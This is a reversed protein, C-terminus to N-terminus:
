QNSQPSETAQQSTPMQSTSRPSFYLKARNRIQGLRPQGVPRHPRKVRVDSRYKRTRPTSYMMGSIPSMTMRNLLTQDKISIKGRKAKKELQKLVKQRQNPRLTALYNVIRQQDGSLLIQRENIKSNKPIINNNLVTPSTPIGMPILSHLKCVDFNIRAVTICGDSSSEEPNPMAERRLQMMAQRVYEARNTTNHEETPQTRLGKRIQLLRHRIEPPALLTASQREAVSAVTFSINIDAMDTRALKFHLKQPM